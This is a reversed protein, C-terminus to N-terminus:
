KQAMMLNGWRDVTVRQDPRVVTVSAAEEIIAPGDVRHGDLLTARAYVPVDLGGEEFVVRRRSAPQPAAGDAKPLEPLKAKEGPAIGTVMFNIIEISSDPMHFGFRSQHLDHFAQWLQPATEADLRPFTVPVILEYNQGLYRMELARTLVVGERHGQSALDDLAQASLEELVAQARAPEFRASSMQLTRHRDVRADTVVFGYASFQGPHNPVLGRPIGAEVMLDALHPPGAGGFALLTFDRPDLGREILVARIAGVMNNNAIRVIALATEEVDKGIADAVAAVASRAADPDLQMAGGLFFKPDIRGLV